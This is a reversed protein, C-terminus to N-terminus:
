KRSNREKFYGVLSSILAVIILIVSLISKIYMDYVIMFLNVFIGLFRYIKIDNCWLSYTYITTSIINFLCFYSDFTFIFGLIILVLILLLYFTNNKSKDFLINRLIAVFCMVVGTYADLLIYSVCISSTAIIGFVLIKKSDKLHFTYSYLLYYVVVLFQSLIYSVTLSM